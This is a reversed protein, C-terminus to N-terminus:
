KDTRELYKSFAYGALITKKDEDSIDAGLIKSVGSSWAGDTAFLLRNAGLYRVSEEILPRDYISGGIDAYVNKCDAIAKIEWQWDGGGGIHAMIFTAEPYRRAINAMHVGNSLRPQLMKTQSDMVYGCHMLIPVDLEICKEVLAFQTPDDMWYQHYLKVGVFGFGKVCREIECLMADHYGPNVFAMGYVRGPYRKAMENMLDNAGCFREPTCARKEAIPVSSVVKDIGLMDVTEMFKDAYEYNPNGISSSYNIHEHWAVVPNNHFLSLQEKIDM